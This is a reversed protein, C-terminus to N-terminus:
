RQLTTASTMIHSVAKYSSTHFADEVKGIAAIRCDGFVRDRSHYWAVRFQEEISVEVERSFAGHAYKLFLEISGFCGYPYVFLFYCFM